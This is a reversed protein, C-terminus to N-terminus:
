RSFPDYEVVEKKIEHRLNYIGPSRTFVIVLREIKNHYLDQAKNRPSPQWHHCFQHPLYLQDEPVIRMLVREDNLDSEPILTAMASRDLNRDDHLMQPTKTIIFRHSHVLLDLHVEPM